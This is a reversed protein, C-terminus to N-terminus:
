TLPKEFYMSSLHQCIRFDFSIYKKIKCDCANNTGVHMCHDNKSIEKYITKASFLEAENYFFFIELKRWESENLYECYPLKTNYFNMIKKELILSFNITM